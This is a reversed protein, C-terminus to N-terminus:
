FHKRLRFDWPVNVFEGSRKGCLGGTWHLSSLWVLIRVYLFAAGDILRVCKSRCRLWLTEFFWM